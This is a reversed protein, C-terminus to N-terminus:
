ENMPFVIKLEKYLIANTPLENAVSLHHGCWMGIYKEYERPPNYDGGGRGCGNCTLLPLPHVRSDEKSRKPIVVYEYTDHNILYKHYRDYVKRKPLENITKDELEESSLCYANICDTEDEAGAKTNIFVDDGYDGAWVIPCGAYENALLYEAARCMPNGVYSHEMLKLGISSTHRKGDWGQFYYHFKHSYLSAVPIEVSPIFTKPNKNFDEYVKAINADKRFFVPLYYQGM